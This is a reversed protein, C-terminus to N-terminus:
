GIEIRRGLGARVLDRRSGGDGLVPLVAPAPTRQDDGQDHDQHQDTTARGGRRHVHMRDVLADGANLCKGINGRLGTRLLHRGGAVRHVKQHQAAIGAIRVVGASRAARSV